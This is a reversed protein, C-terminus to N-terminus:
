STIRLRQTEERSLLSWSSSQCSCRLTRNGWWISLRRRYAWHLALYLTRQLRRQNLLKLPGPAGLVPFHAKFPLIVRSDPSSGQAPVGPGARADTGSVSARLKEGSPRTGETPTSSWTRGLLARGAGPLEQEERVQGSCSRREGKSRGRCNGTCRQACAEGTGWTWGTRSSPWGPRSMAPGQTGNNEVSFTITHRLNDLSKLWSSLCPFIRKSDVLSKQIVPFM